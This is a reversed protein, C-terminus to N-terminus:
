FNRPPLKLLWGPVSGCSSIGNLADSSGKPMTQRGHRNTSPFGNGRWPKGGNPNVLLYLGREDTLKYPKNKPKAKRTEIDSLMPSEEPTITDVKPSLRIGVPIGVPSNTNSTVGHSPQPL